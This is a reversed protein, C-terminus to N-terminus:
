TQVQSKTEKHVAQFSEGTIALFVDELTPRQNIIDMYAVENDELLDIVKSINTKKATIVIDGDENEYPGHKFLLDHVNDRTEQTKCRVIIKNVGGYKDILETPSGMDMLKGHHLIVVRDALFQVEDMYHSTLFITKGQEELGQIVSWTERRARPDLGTTPEDLVVLEPDNILAIAIGLRRKLGGSLNKYPTKRKDELSLLSILEDPDQSYPFLRGWFRLNEIVTLNEHTSFEQPLIGMHLRVKELQRKKLVNYGLVRVKGSTPKRLGEFIEVATTKGAGNPGLLSFIEGKKVKFSVNDVARLDGYEKVLNEIEIAYENSAM